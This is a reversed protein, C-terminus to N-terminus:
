IAFTDVNKYSPPVDLNLLVYLALLEERIIWFWAVWSYADKLVTCISRFTWVIQGVCTINAIIEHEVHEWGDITVSQYPFRPVKQSQKDSVVTIM